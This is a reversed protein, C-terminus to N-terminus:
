IQLQCNQTESLCVSCLKGHFVSKINRRINGESENQICMPGNQRGCRGKQRSGISFSTLVTRTMKTFTRRRRRGRRERRADERIRGIFYGLGNERLVHRLYWCRMNREMKLSYLAFQQCCYNNNFISETSQGSILLMTTKKENKVDFCKKESFTNIRELDYNQDNKERIDLRTDFRSIRQSQHLIKKEGRERKGKDM